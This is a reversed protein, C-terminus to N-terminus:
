AESPPEAQRHLYDLFSEQTTRETAPPASRRQLRISGDARAEEIARDLERDAYRELRRAAAMQNDLQAVLEELEPSPGEHMIRSHVQKIEENLASIMQSVKALVSTAQAITENGPSVTGASVSELQPHRARWVWEAATLTADRAERAKESKASERAISELETVSETSIDTVQTTAFDLFRDTTMFHVRQGSAAYYEEILEPRGGHRESDVIYWWDEKQDNTVFIASRKVKGVHSLAQKWLVLDGYKGPEGKNADKYGPPIQKEYRAEGEKHVTALEDDTFAPGVRGDYLDTIQAFIKENTNRAVMSARHEERATHLKGIVAKVATEFEAQLPSIDLSPHRKYTNFANDVQGRAKDLAKEIEGFASGQENIIEIRRRHFEMGVQHPLWLDGAKATLVKLFDERARQSYRFLNLLANTDLILLGDAWLEAM